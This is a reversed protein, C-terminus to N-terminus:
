AGRSWFPIAHKQVEEEDQILDQNDDVWVPLSAFLEFERVFREWTTQQEYEANDGGGSAILNAMMEVISPSMLDQDVLRNLDMNKVRCHMSVRRRAEAEIDEIGSRDRAQYMSPYQVRFRDITESSGFETKAITYLEPVPLDDTDPTWLVTCESGASWTATTSTDLAYTCWCPYLSTATTHAYQITHRLSVVKTSSNYSEVEIIEDRGDASAAILLRDGRSLAGPTGGLTVTADGRAAASALAVSTYLTAATSALLTTGGADTVSINVGTVGAVDWHDPFEFRLTFSSDNYAIQKLSM